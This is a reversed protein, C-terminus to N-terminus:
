QPPPSPRSQLLCALEVEVGQAWRAGLLGLGPSALDASSPSAPRSDAVRRQVIEGIWAMVNTDPDIHCGALWWVEVFTGALVAAVRYPDSVQGRLGSLVLGSCHDFLEGFAGLDDDAVRRILWRLREPSGRLGSSASERSRAARRFPDHHNL